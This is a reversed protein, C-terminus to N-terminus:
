KMLKKRGFGVLGILGSGLLLITAPEPVPAVEGSLKLDFFTAGGHDEALVQIVNSGPSVFGLTTLPLTYEWYSTYGEAMQKAVQQGNIFVMFGNDSAVNLTIPATLIGDIFFTKQLALDTNAAWYTNYPLSYPNGFAAQGTAWTANVWDFSSYGATSWNSWLDTKLVSYQWTAGEGVLLEAQANSYSFSCLAALTILIVALKRM